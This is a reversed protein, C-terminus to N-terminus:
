QLTIEVHTDATVAFKVEDFGPRGFLPKADNSYAYSEGGFGLFGTDLKGNDNEDHVVVVAYEGPPLKGFRALYTGDENVPGSTQLFPEKLFREASAFLSIELTGTPPDAHVVRVILDLEDAPNADPPDAEQAQLAGAPLLGLLAALLAALRAAAAATGRAPLRFSM